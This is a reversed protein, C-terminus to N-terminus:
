EGTRRIEESVLRYIEDGGVRFAPAWLIGSDVM